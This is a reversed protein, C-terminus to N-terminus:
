DVQSTLLKHLESPAKEVAVPVEVVSLASTDIALPAPRPTLDIPDGPPALDLGDLDFEPKPPPLRDVLVAGAEALSLSSTDFEKRQRVQPPLLQAGVEALTLGSPPEPAPPPQVEVVAPPPVSAPHAPIDAMIPGEGIVAVMIGAQRLAEQYRAAADRALGSKLVTKPAALLAEIREGDSRFLRVLNAKVQERDFGGLIKGRFVIQFTPESM